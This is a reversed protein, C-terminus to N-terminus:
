GVVNLVLLYSVPVGIRWVKRRKKTGRLGRAVFPVLDGKVREEERWGIAM